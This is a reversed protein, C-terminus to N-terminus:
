AAQGSRDAAKRIPESPLPTWTVTAPLLEAGGSGPQADTPKLGGWGGFNHWDLTTSSPDSGPPDPSTVSSAGTAQPPQASDESNEGGTWGLDNLAPDLNFHCPSPNRCCHPCAPCHETERHDQTAMGWAWQTQLNQLTLHPSGLTNWAPTGAPLLGRLFLCLAHDMRPRTSPNPDRPSNM